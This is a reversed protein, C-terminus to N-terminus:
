VLPVLLSGAVCALGAPVLPRPVLYEALFLVVAVALLLVRLDHDSM